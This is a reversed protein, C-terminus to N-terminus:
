PGKYWGPPRADGRACAPWPVVHDRGPGQLRPCWHDELPGLGRTILSSSSHVAASTVQRGGRVGSLARGARQGHQDAWGHIHPDRGPVDAATLVRAHMGSFPPMVM